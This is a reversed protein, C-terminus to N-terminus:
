QQVTDQSRADLAGGHNSGKLGQFPKAGPHFPVVGTRWVDVVELM